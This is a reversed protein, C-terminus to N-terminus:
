RCTLCRIQALGARCRLRGRDLRALERPAEAGVDREATDVQRHRAALGESQELRTEALALQAELGDLAAQYQTPDIRFLVDGQKVPKDPDVPVEIVEGAM